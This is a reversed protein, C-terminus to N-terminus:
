GPQTVSGPQVGDYSEAPDPTAIADRHSASVSQVMRLLRRKTDHNGIRSFSQLLAVVSPDTLTAPPDEKEEIPAEFEAFFFSIPSRLATAIAQLKTASIRAAGREYDQIQEFSVGIFMALDTQTLECM